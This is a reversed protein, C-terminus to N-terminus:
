SPDRKCVWGMWGGAVACARVKRRKSLHGSVTAMKKGLNQMKHKREGPALQADAKVAAAQQRHTAFHHQCM